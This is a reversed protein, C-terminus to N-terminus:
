RHKGQSGQPHCQCGAPSPSSAGRNEIPGTNRPVGQALGIQGAMRPTVTHSIPERKTTGANSGSAQGQKM